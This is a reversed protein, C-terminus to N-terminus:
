QQEEQSGPHRGPNRSSHAGCPVCRAWHVYYRQQCISYALLSPALLFIIRGIIRVTSNPRLTRVGPLAM